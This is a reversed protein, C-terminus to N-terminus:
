LPISSTTPSPCFGIEKRFIDSFNGDNTLLACDGIEIM